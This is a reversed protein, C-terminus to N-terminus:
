QPHVSGQGVAEGPSPALHIADVKLAFGLRNLCQGLQQHQHALPERPAQQDRPDGADKRDQNGCPLDAVPIHEQSEDILHRISPAIGLVAFVDAKIEEGQGGIDDEFIPKQQQEDEAKEDGSRHIPHLSNLSCRRDIEGAAM